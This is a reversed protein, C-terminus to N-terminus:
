RIGSTSADSPEDPAPADTAGDGAGADPGDAARGRGLAARTEWARITGDTAATVLRSGDPSLVVATVDGTHAALFATTRAEPVDWVRVVTDRWSSGFVRRGDPSLTLTSLGDRLGLRSAWHTGAELDWAALADSRVGGRVLVRGDATLALLGDDFGPGERLRRPPGGDRWLVVNGSEDGAVVLEGGRALCVQTIRGLGAPPLVEATGDVTSWLRVRGRRDGSVLLAGTADLALASAGGARGDVRRLLRGDAADWLHVTGDLAASAIRSGDASVAVDLINTAHGDLLFRLSGDGNWVPVVSEQLSGGVITRADADVALETPAVALGQLVRTEKAGRLSADWLTAVGRDDGALLRAGGDAVAVATVLGRHGTLPTRRGTMLDVWAADGDAAVLLRTGRDDVALATVPGGPGAITTYPRDDGDLYLAVLGRGDAVFLRGGNADLAVRAEGQQRSPIERVLEGTDADWCRAAGLRSGVAFRRGDASVAVSRVGAEFAATVLYENGRKADWAHVTGDDAGSVVLWGDRSVGVARVRALHGQLVFLERGDRADWVRTVSDDGGTVLTSGDGSLAVGRVAGQHAPLRLLEAGTGADWLVVEGDFGGTALRRGDPTIAVATLAGQHGDFRMLSTDARLAFHDWEWGRLAPPCAELRLRAEVHEGREVHLAAAQVNALASLEVAREERLRSVREAARAAAAAADARGTAEEAEQRLDVERALALGLLLLLAAGLAYGTSLAPHRMIWRRLRGLADPPAARIPEHSLFRKLDDAFAKMDGYRDARRKELAKACIIALDAPLGPELLRADPPDEEVVRRLVDATKEGPFARQLTLAEYLVAGLSFVDSRDDLATEGASVQEPSMYAATGVLGRSTGDGALQALGFDSVRPRDDPGVLINSPKLDRHLIGEAHATEVARAVDLVLRAVRQDHQNRQRPHRRLHELVDALTLGDGVLQQAIYPVGDVEGAAYVTVIGPHDLCGGAKAERALAHAREASATEPRLLKLAVRRGLSIQEAEWVEGMAGQGLQRLLRYDGLVDGAERRTRAASLDVSERGQVMEHFYSADALTPPLLRDMATDLRTWRDHLRRLAEAEAPHRELLEEFSTDEDNELADLWSEFLTEAVSTSPPPPDSPSATM